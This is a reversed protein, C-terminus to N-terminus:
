TPLDSSNQGLHPAPTDAHYQASRKGNVIFPSRIQRISENDASQAQEFLQVAELHEDTFLDDLGNVRACPIDESELAELWEETTRTAAIRSIERYLWDIHESRQVPDTVRSDRTLETEGCLAFFRIWHKTSYPLIALYSDKTKHPKRYPTMLRDYGLDGLPPEYSHGALHEAMLFSTMAELMPAEICVGEGRRARHAIGAAVALALHLGVVKDCAITRVFQPEGRDNANLAALGSRAQIIDDYAPAEADPGTSGFGPSFCYVLDPKFQQLTEYGIGLREASSKRMNHVFVDADRILEYLRPRESEQKLDLVVSKKNRNFNQFGAGIDDSRGPRVARFIDGEPAEVKIVEAGFDGLMQTAYPGLVVTTMDVIRVGELLNFM